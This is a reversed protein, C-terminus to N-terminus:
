VIYTELQVLTDISGCEDMIAATATFEHALEKELLLLARELVLLSFVVLAVGQPVVIWSM